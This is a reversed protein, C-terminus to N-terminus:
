RDGIVSNVDNLLNESVNSEDRDLDVGALVKQLVRMEIESLNTITYRVQMAKAVSAM